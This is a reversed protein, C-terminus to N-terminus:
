MREPANIGLIESANRLVQRVASILAFRAKNLESEDTNVRVANYFTHFASALDVAYRTIRSPDMKEEGAQIEEYFRSLVEMLAIEEPEGLLSLDDPFFLWASITTPRGDTVEAPLADTVDLNLPIPGM